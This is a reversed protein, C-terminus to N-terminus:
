FRILKEFIDVASEKYEVQPLFASLFKQAEIVKNKPLYIKISPQILSNSQLIITSWESEGELEPNVGFGKLNKFEYLQQDGIVLGKNTLKFKTMAPKKSGLGILLIEAIVVFVGFLFNRQWIAVALLIAAFFMSIWYWSISKERYEFEPAEWSIENPM